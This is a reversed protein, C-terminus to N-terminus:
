AIELLHRENFSCLMSASQYTHWMSCRRYLLYTRLKPTQYRFQCILGGVMGHIFLFALNQYNFFLIYAMIFVVDEDAGGGSHGPSHLRPGGLRRHAM